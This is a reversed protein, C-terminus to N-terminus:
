LHAHSAGKICTRTPAQEYLAVNHSGLKKFVSVIKVLNKKKWKWYKFSHNVGMHFNESFISVRLGDLIYILKNKM